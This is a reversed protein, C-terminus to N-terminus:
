YVIFAYGFGALLFSLVLITNLAELKLLQGKKSEDSSILFSYIIVLHGAFLLGYFYLMEGFFLPLVWLLPVASIAHNLLPHKQSLRYYGFRNLGKFTLLIAAHAVMLSFIVPWKLGIFLVLLIFPVAIQTIGNLSFLHSVLESRTLPGTQLLAQPTGIEAKEKRYAKDAQEIKKLLADKDPTENM